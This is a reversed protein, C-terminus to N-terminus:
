ADEYLLDRPALGEMCARELAFRLLADVDELTKGVRDAPTTGGWIGWDSTRTTAKHAHKDVGVHIEYSASNRPELVSSLCERIVPCLTCCAIAIRQGPTLGWRAGGGLGYGDRDKSTAESFWPDFEATARGACRADQVWQSSGLSIGALPAVMRENAAPGYTNRIKPM